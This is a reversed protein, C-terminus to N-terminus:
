QYKDGCSVNAYIGIIIFDRTNLFHAPQRMYGSIQANRLMKGAADLQCAIM